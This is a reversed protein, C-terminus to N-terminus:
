QEHCIMKLSWLKRGSNLLRQELEENRMQWMEVECRILVQQKRLDELRVQLKVLSRDSYQQVYKKFNQERLWSAQLEQKLWTLLPSNVLTDPEVQIDDRGESSSRKGKKEVSMTSGKASPSRGLRAKAPQKDLAMSMQKERKEVKIKLEGKLKLLEKQNNM